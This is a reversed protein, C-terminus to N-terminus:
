REWNEIIWFVFSDGNAAISITEIVYIWYCILKRPCRGHFNNAWSIPPPIKNGLVKWRTFFRKETNIRKINLWKNMWNIWGFICVHYEELQNQWFLWFQSFWDFRCIDSICQYEVIMIMFSDYSQFDEWDSDLWMWIVRISIFTFFKIRFYLM